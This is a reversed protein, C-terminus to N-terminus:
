GTYLLTIVQRIIMGFMWEFRSFSSDQNELFIWSKNRCQHWRTHLHETRILLLLQLYQKDISVLFIFTFFIM